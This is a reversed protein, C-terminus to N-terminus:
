YLSVLHGRLNYRLSSCHFSTILPASVPMSFWVLRNGNMGLLQIKEELFDAMPVRRAAPLLKVFMV